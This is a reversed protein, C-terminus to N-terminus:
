SPTARDSATPTRFSTPAWTSPRASAAQSREPIPAGTRAVRSARPSGSRCSGAAPLSVQVVKEMAPARRRSAQAPQGTRTRRSRQRPTRTATTPTTARWTPWTRTCWTAGRTSSRSPSGRPAPRSRGRRRHASRPSAGSRVSGPDSPPANPMEPLPESTVGPQVMAAGSLQATLARREALATDGNTAVPRKGLVVFSPEAYEVAEEEALENAIELPDRGAAVTM